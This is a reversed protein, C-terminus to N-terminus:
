CLAHGGLDGSALAAPRGISRAGGVLTHSPLPVSPFMMPPVIQNVLATATTSHEVLLTFFGVGRGSHRTTVLSQLSQLSISNSVAVLPEM